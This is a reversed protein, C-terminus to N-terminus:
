QSSEGIGKAVVIGNGYLTHHPRRQVIARRPPLFNRKEKRAREIQTINIGTILLVYITIFRYTINVLQFFPSLTLFPLFTAIIIKILNSVANKTQWINNIHNIDHRAQLFMQELILCIRVCENLPQEHIIQSM